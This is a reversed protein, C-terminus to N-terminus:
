SGSHVTKIKELREIDEIYYSYIDSVAESVVDTLYLTEVKEAYIRIAFACAYTAINLFSVLNLDSKETEYFYVLDPEDNQAHFLSNAYDFNDDYGNIM